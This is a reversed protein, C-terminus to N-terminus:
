RYRAAKGDQQQGDDGLVPWNARSFQGIPDSFLATKKMTKIMENNKIFLHSVVIFGV